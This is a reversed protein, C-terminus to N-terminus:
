KKSNEKMKLTSEKQKRELIRKWWEKVKWCEKRANENHGENRCQM